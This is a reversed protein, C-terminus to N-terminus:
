CRLESLHWRLEAGGRASDAEQLAVDVLERGGKIALDHRLEVPAIKRHRVENLLGHRRRAANEVELRRKGVVVIRPSCADSLPDDEGEM